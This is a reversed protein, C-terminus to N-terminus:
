KQQNEEALRAFVEYYLTGRKTNCKAFHLADAVLEAYCGECLAAESISICNEQRGCLSCKSEYM